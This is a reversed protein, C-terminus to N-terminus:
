PRYPNCWNCVYYPTGNMTGIYQSKYLTPNPCTPITYLGNVPGKSSFCIKDPNCRFQELGAPMYPNYTGATVIECAEAPSDPGHCEWITRNSNRVKFYLKIKKEEVKDSWPISNTYFKIEAYYKSTVAASNPSIPVASYAFRLDGNIPIPIGPAAIAHITVKEIKLGNNFVKGAQVYNLPDNPEAGFSSKIVISQEIEAQAPTSNNFGAGGLLRTCEIPDNIRMSLTRIIEMLEEEKRRNANYKESNTILGMLALATVAMVGSLILVMVIASGKRNLHMTFM